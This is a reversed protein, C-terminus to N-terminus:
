RAAWNSWRKPSRRSNKPTRKEDAQNAEDDLKVMECYAKTAAPDSSILKVVKQLDAKTVKPADKPQAQACLPLVVLAAVLLKLKM